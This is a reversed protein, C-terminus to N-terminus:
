DDGHMIEAVLAEREAESLGKATLQRDFEEMVQKWVKAKDEPTKASQILKEWKQKEEPRM